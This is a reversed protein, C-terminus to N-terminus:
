FITIAEWSYCLKLSNIRYNEMFPEVDTQEKKKESSIMTCVVSIWKIGYLTKWQMTCGKINHLHVPSSVILKTYQICKEMSMQAMKINCCNNYICCFRDRQWNLWDTIEKSKQMMSFNYNFLFYHNANKSNNGHSSAYQKEM